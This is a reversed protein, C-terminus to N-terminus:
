VIASLPYITLRGNHLSLCCCLCVQNALILVNRVLECLRKRYEEEFLEERIQKTSPGEEGKNEKKAKAKRQNVTEQSVVVDPRDCPVYYFLYAAKLVSHMPNGIVSSPLNFFSIFDTIAHTKPDEVVFSYMVADKNPASDASEQTARESASYFWHEVEEDTEFMPAIEFKRLYKELMQRVAPVDEREM